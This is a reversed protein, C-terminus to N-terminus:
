IPQSRANIPNNSKRNVYDNQDDILERLVREIEKEKRM